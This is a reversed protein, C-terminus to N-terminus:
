RHIVGQRQWRQWTVKQRFILTSLSKLIAYVEVIVIIYFLFWAIPVLAFSSFRREYPDLSFLISYLGGTLLVTTLVPQFNFAGLCYWWILLTGCASLFFEIVQIITMPLTFWFFRKNTLTRSFCCSLYLAMSEFYGRKWRLRQKALTGISMPGETYVIADHAYFIRMGARQIRLSLEMDETLLSPAYGGLQTFVERRFAAAAGGIVFITGLIAEAKKLQFAMLYELYQVLGIITDRNGIKIHGACAMITPEIFYSVFREICHTDVVSDADFTCIIEGRAVQIGYNLASGKGGNSKAYYQISIPSLSQQTLSQYQYIFQQVRNGTGDQSGDDIVLIEIARYTSNLLTKLTSAIGVEENYAPIIVSVFPTYAFGNRQHRAQAKMYQVSHDYRQALIYLPFARILWLLLLLSMVIVTIRFLTDGWPFVFGWTITDYIMLGLLAYGVIFATYYSLHKM